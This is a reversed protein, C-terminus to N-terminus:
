GVECTTIEEKANKIQTCNRLNDMVVREKIIENTVFTTPQTITTQSRDVSISPGSQIAENTVKWVVPLVFGGIIVLWTSVVMIFIATKQTRDM